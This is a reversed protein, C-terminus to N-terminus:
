TAQLLAHLRLCASPCTVAGAPLCALFLGTCAPHHQADWLLDHYGCEQTQSQRGMRVTCCLCLFPTCQLMTFTSHIFLVGQIPSSLIKVHSVGSFTSQILKDLWINQGSGMQFSTICKNGVSFVLEIFVWKLQFYQFSFNWFQKVNSCYRKSTTKTM